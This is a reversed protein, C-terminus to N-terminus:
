GLTIHSWQDSINQKEGRRWALSRDISLRRSVKAVVLREYSPRMACASDAKVSCLASTLARPGSPACASPMLASALVSRLYLSPSESCLASSLLTPLSHAM